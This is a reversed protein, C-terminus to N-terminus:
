HSRIYSMASEALFASRTRNHQEAYRDIKDLVYRPLSINIRAPEREPINAEIVAVRCFDGHSEAEELLESLAADSSEEPIQENDEAMAEIHFNLAERGAELAESVNEGGSVCGPFDPFAVTIYGGDKGSLIANYFQKM